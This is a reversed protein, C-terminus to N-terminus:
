VSLSYFLRARFFKILLFGVFLLALVTILKYSSSLSSFSNGVLYQPGTNFLFINLVAEKLFSFATSFSFDVHTGGTGVFFSMGFVYKKVFVNLLISGIILAAILASQKQKVKKLTTTAILVLLLFPLLIIYREHTYLSLNAFLIAFLMNAPGLTKDGGSKFQKVVYYLCALFFTLALGELAGGSTLQTINFFAFRSLGLLLGFLISLVPTALYLNLLCAFIFTNISQVIVNFWYYGDANKDFSDIILQLSIGHIPRYKEVAAGMNVKESFTKLGTYYKYTLLDDGYFVHTKWQLFYLFVVVPIVFMYIIPIRNPNEHTLLRESM